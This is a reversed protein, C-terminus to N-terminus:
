WGFAHGVARMFSAIVALVVLGAMPAIFLAACGVKAVAPYLTQNKIVRVDRAMKRMEVDTLM